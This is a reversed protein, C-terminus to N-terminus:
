SGQLDRQCLFELRIISGGRCARGSPSALSVWFFVNTYRAGSLLINLMLRFLGMYKQFPNSHKVKRTPCIWILNFQKAKLWKMTCKPWAYTRKLSKVDCTIRDDWVYGFIGYELAHPVCFCGFSCPGQVDMTLFSSLGILVRYLFDM